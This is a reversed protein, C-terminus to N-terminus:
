FAEEDLEGKEKKVRDTRQPTDELHELIEEATQAGYAIEQKLEEELQTGSQDTEVNEARKSLQRVVATLEEKKIGTKQMEEALFLIQQLSEQYFRLRTVPQSYGDVGAELLQKLEQWYVQAYNEKEGSNDQIGLREYYSGM